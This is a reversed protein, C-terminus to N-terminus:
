TVLAAIRMRRGGARSGATPDEVSVCQHQCSSFSFAFFLYFDLVTYPPLQNCFFCLKLSLHIILPSFSNKKLNWIVNHTSYFLQWEVAVGLQASSLFMPKMAVRQGACCVGILVNDCRIGARDPLISPADYLYHTLHFLWISEFHIYFSLMRLCVHQPQIQTHPYIFYHSLSLLHAVLSVAECYPWCM